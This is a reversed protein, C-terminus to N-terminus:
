AECSTVNATNTVFRGREDIHLSESHIIANLGSQLTMSVAASPRPKCRDSLRVLLNLKCRSWEWTSTLCFISLM